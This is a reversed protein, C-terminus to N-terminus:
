AERVGFNWGIASCEKVSCHDLKRTDPAYTNGNKLTIGVDAADILELNFFEYLSQDLVPTKWTLRELKM